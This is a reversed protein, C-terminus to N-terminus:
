EDKVLEEYEAKIEDRHVYIHNPPTDFYKAGFELIVSGRNNNKYETGDDPRVFGIRGVIHVITKCHELISAYREEGNIEPILMVTTFGNKAEDIAKAVWPDIKSYPPNCFGREGFEMWDWDFASNEQTFYSECFHHEANAALDVDFHFKRDLWSFLYPPTQLADKDFSKDKPEFM